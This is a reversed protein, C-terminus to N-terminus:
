ARAENLLGMISRRPDTIVAVRMGFGKDMYFIVADNIFDGMYAKEELYGKARMWNFSTYVNPNLAVKRILAQSEAEMTKMVMEAANGPAAMKEALLVETPVKVERFATGGDAAQVQKYYRGGSILLGRAAPETM